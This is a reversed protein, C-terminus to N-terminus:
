IEALWVDEDVEKEATEKWDTISLFLLQSPSSSFGSQYRVTVSTSATEVSGKTM